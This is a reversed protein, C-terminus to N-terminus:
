RRKPKPEQNQSIAPPAPAPNPARPKLEDRLMKLIGVSPSRKAKKIGPEVLALADRALGLRRLESAEIYITRVHDTLDDYHKRALRFSLQAGELDGNEAQLVALGEYIIGSGMSAATSTLERAGEDPGKAIWTQAGNRYALWERTEASEPLTQAIDNWYKYPAYLPDGVFTNMWSLCRTGAYVSEGFTMGSTFRDVFVDMETTFQLYPEYVTGFTAAAGRALLPAIWGTKIDRITTASFSHIHAAVAGRSFFFDARNFPGSVNQAYWGLYLAADRMPYEEPWIAEVRDLVVPVGRKKLTAMADLLWRDGEAYGQQTIGRADIYARGVLGYRETVISDMIMRRVTRESAADLRCVALIPVLNFERLPKYSRYYPNVLAGSIQPTFLGLAALESDVCSENRGRLPEPGELKDGPYPSLVAAIKLPIGRVLVVNYISSQLVKGNRAPDLTWWGASAFKKRLPGAITADYDERTIEETTPCRLTVVRDKPIRRQEAYFFALETSLVDRENCVVITENAGEAAGGLWPPAAGIASSALSACAITALIGQTSRRERGM